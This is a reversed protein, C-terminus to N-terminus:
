KGWVGILLQGFGWETRTGIKKGHWALVANATTGNAELFFVSGAPLLTRLPQPEGSGASTGLWGGARQARGICASVLKGPLGAYSADPMPLGIEAIDLPTILIACYRLTGNTAEINPPAVPLDLARQEPSIWCLRSEGATPAPNAPELNEPLGQAVLALKVGWALRVHAPSYIANDERVTRSQGDRWNGVRREHLFLADDKLVENPLGGALLETMEGVNLWGSAPEYKGVAPHPEPLRVMSEGLDCRREPGPSLRVLNEYTDKVLLAPIPFVPQSDKLLYPGDFSVPQLDIGSGFHPKVHTDWDKAPWGLARAYAARTAGILTPAFPPFQSAVQANSEDKNYPRGDRFFLTDLPTFILVTM